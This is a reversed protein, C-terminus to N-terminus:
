PLLLLGYMLAIGPVGLIASVLVTVCNLGLFVGTKCLVCNCIFILSTGMVGKFCLKGIFEARSIFYLCLMLFVASFVGWHILQVSIIENM